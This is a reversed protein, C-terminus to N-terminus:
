FADTVRTNKEGGINESVMQSLSGTKCRHKWFADTVRNKKNGGINESVM